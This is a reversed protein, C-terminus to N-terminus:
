SLLCDDETLKIQFMVLVLPGLDVIFDQVERSIARVYVVHHSPYSIIKSDLYAQVESLFAHEM